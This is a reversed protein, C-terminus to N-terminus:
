FSLCCTDLDQMQTAPDQMRTPIGERVRRLHNPDRAQALARSGKELHEMHFGRSLQDLEERVRFPFGSSQHGNLQAPFM